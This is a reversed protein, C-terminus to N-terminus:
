PLRCSGLYASWDIRSQYYPWGICWFVLGLASSARLGPPPATAKRREQTATNHDGVVSGVLAEGRAGRPDFIPCLNLGGLSRGEEERTDYNYKKPNGPRTM